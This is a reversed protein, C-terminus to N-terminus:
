TPSSGTTSRRPSTRGGAPQAPLAVGRVQSRIPAHQKSHFPRPRSATPRPLRAGQLARPARDPHPLGRPLQRRLGELQVRGRLGGEQLPEHADLPLHARRRRSRASCRARAAPAAPDLNVFVFPGWTEVRAAPLSQQSKEFCSCATGSPRRRPAQRRPQLDLRPLRVAAVQPPGRGRAVPGARHRCVNSFAHMAGDDGRTVVLPEDAVTCTFYDGPLRSRSPQPRRAALDARLHPRARARPGRPRPVLDVPITAASALDTEFRYDAPM